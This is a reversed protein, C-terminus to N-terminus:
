GDGIHVPPGLFRPDKAKPLDFPGYYRQGNLIAKSEVLFFKGTAVNVSASVNTAGPSTMLPSLQVNMLKALGGPKKIGKGDLRVNAMSANIADKIVTANDGIPLRKAAIFSNLRNLAPQEISAVFCIQAGPPATPRSTVRVYLDDLAKAEVNSLKPATAKLIKAMEADTVRLDQMAKQIQSRVATITM